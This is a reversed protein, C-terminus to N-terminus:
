PEPSLLLKLLCVIIVNRYPTKSSKLSNIKIAFMTNSYYIAYYYQISYDSSQDSRSLTKPEVSARDVFKNNRNQTSKTNM